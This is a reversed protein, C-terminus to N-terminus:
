RMWIRFFKLFRLGLWPRLSWRSFGLCASASESCASKLRVSCRGSCAEVTLRSKKRNHVKLEIKPKYVDTWKVTGIDLKNRRKEREGIQRKQSQKRTRGMWVCLGVVLASLSAFILLVFIPIPWKSPRVLINWSKSNRAVTLNNALCVHAQVAVCM